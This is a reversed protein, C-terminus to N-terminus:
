IESDEIYIHIGQNIHSEQTQLHVKKELLVKTQDVKEKTIREGKIILPIGPPYPVVASSAVHGITEEWPVFKTPMQKLDGYSYPIKEVMTSYLNEVNITAHLQKKHKEIKKEVARFSQVIKSVEVTPALGFILLVQSDTVLEPYIGEGELAEAIDAARYGENIQLTIKYPDDKHLHLPIVDWVNSSLQERLSQIWKLSTTLEEQTYNALYHRALDLTAMIPYSPSSSQIMQLYTSIKQNKVRQSCVHLYAGMTMAPAMKHASQVVVDAGYEISSKPVSDGMSFHVGHAEDVLVPINYKHAEEIIAKINYTRGYYDPYTLLIGSANPNQQIAEFTAEISIPGFREVDREYIPSIFVPHAGALELGHMISKHSNRQVLFPKDQQHMALIMALNGATSGGVLFHTSLSGFWNSALNQAEKIVEEPHHLDDLGSLETFDISLVDKFYNYGIESFIKGNKHGPVHLSTSDKWSHQEMARFLPTQQQNEKM